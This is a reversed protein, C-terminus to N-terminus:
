GIMVPSQRMYRSLIEDAEPVGDALEIRADGRSFAKARQLDGAQRFFLDWVYLATARKIDGPTVTWGFTGTVQVAQTGLPWNWPGWYTGSLGVGWYTLDLYDSGQIEVAGTSDLSSHLRYANADQTVLTGDFYRTKVATVATCRRMLYLRPSPAYVDHELVLGVTAEFFDNTKDNIRQTVSAIAVTLDADPAQSATLELGACWSAHTQPRFDAPAVYVM